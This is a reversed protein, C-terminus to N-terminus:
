VRLCLTKIYHSYDEGCADKIIMALREASQEDCSLENIYQEALANSEIGNSISINVIDLIKCLEGKNLPQNQGYYEMSFSPEKDKQIHLKQGKFELSPYTVLIKCIREYADYIKEGYSKIHPNKRIKNDILKLQRLMQADVNENIMVQVMELIPAKTFQNYINQAKTQVSSKM